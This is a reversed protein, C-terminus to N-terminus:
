GKEALGALGSVRAGVAVVTGAVDLGGVYPFNAYPPGNPDEAFKWDCPNVSSGGVKILVENAKPTPVPVHQPIIVSFNPPSGLCQTIMAARMTDPAALAAVGFFM